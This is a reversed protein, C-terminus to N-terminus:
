LGYVAEEEPIDVRMLCDSLWTKLQGYGSYYLVKEIESQNLQKCYLESEHLNRKKIDTALQVIRNNVIIFDLELFVEIMFIIRDKSWGKQKMIIHLDKELDIEKKQILLAYFWKFAERDPFIDLYSSKEVTYNAHIISPNTIQIINKLKDLEYPMDFIFVVDYQQLTDPDTEYTIQDVHEHQDVLPHKNKGIILHKKGLIINSEIADMSKRGRHDFLQWENVQIDEILIQTKKNGNWENISLEGVIEVPTQNAIRYYLDGKHFGVGDLWKDNHKFQLKLHNKMAGMQKLQTPIAKLHFVPKPNKMGFPALKNIENVLQENMDSLELTKNINILQKFDEENLQEHILNDLSAQIQELHEYPLTMGAAQSHGGFNTFLHRIKMCNQFLNFAPISRASGKLEGTDSNVTLVIAPRYYKKVLRSAVIGLVGENWDERHVIIVGNKEKTELLQEAEKVIKAVIQQRQQNILDIEKAMEDAEQEDTAMLLEVALSADQLRGVANLRPALLFGIAEETISGEVNCAKKLAQLGLNKTTALKRLGHYAFVRNEEILPVLDAITGIAALDLLHDPFYGLLHQAFKFAVGVGALEKFHYEPSLKPHIIALAEPIEEQIEHHDTIILDIGIKKAIFAEHVSAIGTDVTIILTIGREHAQRFAAENPGYGETFRNPIYFDCNAGLERLAHLIVATSCVGDADYDGFVLIREKSDIAKHVREAAIDIMALQYPSILQEKSPNLFQKADAESQIGRQQLLSKVISNTHDIETNEQKNMETELFHWKANSKLM